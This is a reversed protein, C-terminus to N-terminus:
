IPLQDRQRTAGPYAIVVKASERQGAERGDLLVHADAPRGDHMDIPLAPAACRVGQEGGHVDGVSAELLAPAQWAPEFGQRGTQRRLPFWDGGDARV